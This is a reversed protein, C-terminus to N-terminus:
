ETSLSVTKSVQTPAPVVAIAAILVPLFNIPKSSLSFNKLMAQSLTLCACSLNVKSKLPTILTASYVSVGKCIYFNGSYLQNWTPSNHIARFSREFFNHYIKVDMHRLYFIRSYIAYVECLIKSDFDTIRFTCPALCICKLLQLVGCLAMTRLRCSRYLFNLPM